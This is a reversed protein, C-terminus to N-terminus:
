YEFSVNTFWNYLFSVVVTVIGILVVEKGRSFGKNILLTKIDKRIDKIDSRLAIIDSKIFEWVPDSM